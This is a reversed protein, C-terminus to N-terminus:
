SAPRAPTAGGRFNSAEQPRSTSRLREEERGKQRAMRRNLIELKRTLAKVERELAQPDTDLQVRWNIGGARANKCAVKIHGRGGCKYCQAQKEVVWCRHAPWLYANCHPCREKKVPTRTSRRRRVDRRSATEPQVARGRPVERPRSDGRKPSAITVARKAGKEEVAGAPTKSRPRSTAPPAVVEVEPEMNVDEAVAAVRAVTRPKKADVVEQRLQEIITKLEKIESLAAVESRLQALESVVWADVKGVRPAEIRRKKLTPYMAGWALGLGLTIWLLPAYKAIYAGYLKQLKLGVEGAM